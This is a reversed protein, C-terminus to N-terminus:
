SKKLLLLSIREEGPLRQFNSDMMPPDSAIHTPTLDRTRDTNPIAVVIM